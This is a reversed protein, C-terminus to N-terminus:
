DAADFAAGMTGNAGSNPDYAARLQTMARSIM